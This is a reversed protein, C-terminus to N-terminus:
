RKKIKILEEMPINKICYEIIHKLEPKSAVFLDLRYLKGDGYDEIELHEETLGVLEKALKHRLEHRIIGDHDLNSNELLENSVFHQITLNSKQLILAQKALKISEIISAAVEDFSNM